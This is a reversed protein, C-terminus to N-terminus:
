CLHFDSHRCGYPYAMYLLGIVVLNLLLFLLCHMHVTNIHLCLLVHYLQIYAHQHELLRHGASLSALSSMGFGNGALM